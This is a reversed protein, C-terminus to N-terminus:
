DDYMYIVSPLPTRVLNLLPGGDAQWCFAMENTTPQHVLSQMIKWPPDPGGNGEGRSGRM